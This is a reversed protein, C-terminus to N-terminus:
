QQAAPNGRMEPASGRAQFDKELQKLEANQSQQLQWQRTGEAPGAAAAQAWLAASLMLVARAIAASSAAGARRDGRVSTPRRLTM